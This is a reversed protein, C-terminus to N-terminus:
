GMRDSEETALASAPASEARVAKVSAPASLLTAATDHSMNNERRAGDTTASKAAYPRESDGESLLAFLQGLAAGAVPVSPVATCIDGSSPPKMRSKNCYRCEERRKHGGKSETNDCDGDSDRRTSLSVGNLEVAAGPEAETGGAAGAGHGSGSAGM